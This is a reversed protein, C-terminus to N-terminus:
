STVQLYAKKHIRCLIQSGPKGAISVREGANWCSPAQCYSISNSKNVDEDVKM